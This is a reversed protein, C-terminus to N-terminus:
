NKRVGMARLKDKDREFLRTLTNKSGRHMAYAPVERALTKLEAPFEYRFLTAILDTWRQVKPQRPM